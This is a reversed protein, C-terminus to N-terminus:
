TESRIVTEELRCAEAIIDSFLKRIFDPALGAQTGLAVSRELVQEVRNPQMMPMGAAKKLRAVDACVALRAGLIAILKSDLTDIQDRYAELSNM